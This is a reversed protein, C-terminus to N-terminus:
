RSAPALPPSLGPTDPIALLGDADLRWPDSVIGDIYPSGTLYEVWRVTGENVLPAAKPSDPGPDSVARAPQVAACRDDHIVQARRSQDPRIDAVLHTLDSGPQEQPDHVPALAGLWLQGAEEGQM